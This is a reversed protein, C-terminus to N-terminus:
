QEASRLVPAAPENQSRKEGSKSMGSFLRAFFGPGRKASKNKRRNAASQLKEEHMVVYLKQTNPDM